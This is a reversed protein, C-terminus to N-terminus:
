RLVKRGVKLNQRPTRFIRSDVRSCQRLRLGATDANRQHVKKDPYMGGCAIAHEYGVVLIEQADRLIRTNVCRNIPCLVDLLAPEERLEM